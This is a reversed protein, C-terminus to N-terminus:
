EADYESPACGFHKRFAKAFHSPSDYGVAYAAESVTHREEELLQAARELRLRRILAAPTEDTAEKVRRTLQRQSLAMESALDGAGFQADGLHAEVVTLVEELFPREDESTTAGTPQVQVIESFKDRLQRRASLLRDIRARLEDIDFPKSIYDDAGRELGEIADSSTAKATLLVVPITQLAEDAKIAECLATGTMEPMMVDSVILDPEHERAARLGAEGNDAEIVTYDASLHRRLYARMDANDEVILLTPSASSGGTEEAVPAHTKSGPQGDGFPGETERDTSAFEPVAPRPEEDRAAEDGGQAGSEYEREQIPLRVTFATGSGPESEARLTGEHLEVLENALALGLGLGDRETRETGRAQEFRDFIRRLEEETLGPGTDKVVIEGARADGSTRASVTVWVTGGEPTYTLANSLLNSLVQELKNTDYSAPLRDPGPRFHLTVEEREAMPTFAQVLERTFAVLDGSQRQLELRGAELRTLDLLQGILRRLREANRQMLRLQERLREPVTGFAGDLADSLPELILTLPTRFEHSLNAFFRNKAEDLEALREAQAETKEKERRLQETRHEVKEELTRQRRRLARVRWRYAGVGGLGLLLLCLLKFWATEYFHHPITFTYTTAEGVSGGARRARVEFQYTGPSLDVYRTFGEQTATWTTDRPRLRYEYVVRKPNTFATAAFGIGVTRDAADFRPAAQPSVEEFDREIHTLLVDPPSPAHFLSPVPMATLGRPHSAYLTDGYVTASQTTTALLGDAATLHRRLTGDRQDVVYLGDRASALVLSDGSLVVGKMSRGPLVPNVRATDGATEVRVLGRHRFALWATGRADFAMYRAADDAYDPLVALTDFRMSRNGASPTGRLLRSKARLIVDGNPALTHMHDGNDKAKWAYLLTPADPTDPAHRYLGRNHWFYGRGEASVIGRVAGNPPALKSWGRSPERRFWGRHNLAYMHGDRSRVTMWRAADRPTLRARRPRLRVLGSGWTNIWLAGRATQTFHNAYVLSTGGIRSIHRVTPAFLHLLGGRTGIWLGGEHDRLVCRAEVNQLGFKEDLPNLMRVGSSDSWALRAVGNRSPVYAVGRSFSFNQGRDLLPTLRASDPHFRYVTKRGYLLATGDPGFRLHRWWGQPGSGHPVGAFDVSGDPQLRGPGLQLDLVWLHGRPGFDADALDRGVDPRPQRGPLRFSMKLPHRLPRDAGPALTRYSRKAVIHLTDRRVLLREVSRVEPLVRTVRRARVKLVWGNSTGAWVSRGDAVIHDIKAAGISDPVEVPRFQQGNYVSLGGPTGVYLRGDDAQALANVDENPLGDAVAYRRYPIEDALAASSILLLALGWLLRRM